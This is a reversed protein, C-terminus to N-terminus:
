RRTSGSPCCRCSSVSTPALPSRPPVSPLRWDQGVAERYSEYYHPDFGEAAPQAPLFRHSDFSLTGLSFLLDRGIFLSVVLLIGLAFGAHVRRKPLNSSLVQTIPLYAAAGSLRASWGVAGRLLSARPSALVRAGWLRDILTTLLTLALVPALVILFARQIPLSPVALHLLWALAGLVVIAMVSVAFVAALALGSAFVVSALTDASRRLRPVPPLRERYLELAAPGYRLREWRPGAPFAVHIGVLAVWWARLALHAVFTVILTYLILKAYEYAVVAGILLTGGLNLYLRLFAADVVGVLQFLAFLVGGTILLELESTRERLRADQEAQQQARETVGPDVMVRPLM